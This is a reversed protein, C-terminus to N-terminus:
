HRYCGEALSSAYEGRVPSNPDPADRPARDRLGLKMRPQFTLLMIVDMIIAHVHLM